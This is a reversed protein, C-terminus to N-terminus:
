SAKNKLSSLSFGNSDTLILTFPNATQKDTIMYRFSEADFEFGLFDLMRLLMPTTISDSNWSFVLGEVRYGSFKRHKVSKAPLYEVHLYPAGLHHTEGNIYLDAVGQGIALICHKNLRSQLIPM